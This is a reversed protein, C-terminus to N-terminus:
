DEHTEDRDERFQRPLGSDEESMRGGPDQWGVITSGKRSTRRSIRSNADSQSSSSVGGALVGQNLGVTTSTGGAQVTTEQSLPVLDTQVQTNSTSPLTQTTTSQNSSDQTQDQNLGVTQTTGGAEVTTQSTIPVLTTEVQTNSSGSQTTTEVDAAEQTNVEGEASTDELPTLLFDSLSSSIVPVDPQADSPVEVSDAQDTSSGDDIDVNADLDDSEINIDDGASSVESSFLDAYACTSFITIFGVLLLATKKLM